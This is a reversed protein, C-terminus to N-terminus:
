RQHPYLNRFVPRLQCTPLYSPALQDCRGYTAVRGVILFPPIHGAPVRRSLARQDHPPAIELNVGARPGVAADRFM